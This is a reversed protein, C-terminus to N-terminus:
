ELRGNMSEDQNENVWNEAAEEFPIDRAELMVGQM